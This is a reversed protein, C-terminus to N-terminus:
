IRRLPCANGGGAFHWALSSAAQKQLPQTGADGADLRCWGQDGRAFPAYRSRRLGPGEAQDLDITM